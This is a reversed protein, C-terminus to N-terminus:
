LDLSSRGDAARVCADWYQRAVSPVSLRAALLSARHGLDKALAPNQMLRLMAASLGAVDGVPVLLGNVQDEILEAPGTLCDYSVSPVGAMMAEALANPFGESYSSFAFVGARILYPRLEAVTGVFRTQDAIGLDAARRQLFNRLPGDGCIVLVWDPQDTEAFAKLLDEHGKM